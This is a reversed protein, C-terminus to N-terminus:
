RDILPPLGHQLTVALLREWRGRKQRSFDWHNIEIVAAGRARYASQKRSRREAYIASDTVGWVEIYWGNALFDARSRRDWPLVPEYSHAVGHETLWDCVRREYTSRTQHGDAGIFRAGGKWGNQRRVVGAAKFRASVMGDGVGFRHGISRLSEGEDLYLRSAEALDFAPALQGRRRTEWITPRRVELRNCWHLIASRDVGYRAAVGDYGLHEVNLMRDLEVATPSEVGRNALGRSGPRVVIGAKKLWRTVSVRNVGYIAGIEYTTKREDIYLRKLTATDPRM